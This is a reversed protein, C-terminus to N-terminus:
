FVLRPALQISRPGGSQYLSNFGGNGGGGLSADLMQTARGFPPSTMYSTPPGFNPHSFVNFSDAGRM